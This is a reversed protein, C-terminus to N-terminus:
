ARLADLYERMKDSLDDFFDQFDDIPLPVLIRRSIPVDLAELVKRRAKWRPKKGSGYGIFPYYSKEDRWFVGTIQNQYEEPLSARILNVTKRIEPDYGGLDVDVFKMAAKRLAPSPKNEWAKSEGVGLGIDGTTYIAILDLGQEKVKGHVPLLGLINGVPHFEPRYRSLHIILHSIAEFIWPNRETAKQEETLDNNDMGIISYVDLILRDISEEDIGLLDARISLNAQVASAIQGVCYEALCELCEQSRCFGSIKLLHHTEHHTFEVVLIDCLTQLAQNVDNEIQQTIDKEADSELAM